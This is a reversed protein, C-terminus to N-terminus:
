RAGCLCAWVCVCVCVCVCVLCVCVCVQMYTDQEEMLGELQAIKEAKLQQYLEMLRNYKRQSLICVCM